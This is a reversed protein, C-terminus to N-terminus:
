LNELLYRKISLLTETKDFVPDNCLKEFYVDFDIEPMKEAFFISADKKWYSTFDALTSEEYTVLGLELPKSLLWYPSEFHCGFGTWGFKPYQTLSRFKPYHVKFNAHMNLDNCVIGFLSLAFYSNHCSVKLDNVCNEWERGGFFVTSKDVGFSEFNQIIVTSPKNLTLRKLETLFQNQYYESYNM